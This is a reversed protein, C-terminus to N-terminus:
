IPGAFLWNKLPIPRSRWNPSRASGSGSRDESSRTLQWEPDLFRVTAQM